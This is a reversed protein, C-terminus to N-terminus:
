LQIIEELQEALKTDPFRRKDTLDEELSKKLSKKIQPRKFRIYDANCIIDSPLTSPIIKSNFEEFSYKLAAWNRNEDYPDASAQIGVQLTVPMDKRKFRNRIIWKEDENRSMAIFASGLRIICLEVPTSTKLDDRVFLEWSYYNNVSNAIETLTTNAM